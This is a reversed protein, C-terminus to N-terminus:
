PWGSTIAATCAWCGSSARNAISSVSGSAPRVDSTLRTSTTTNKTVDESEPDSTMSAMVAPPLSSAGTTCRTNQHTKSPTMAM